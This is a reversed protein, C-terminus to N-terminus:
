GKKFKWVILRDDAEIVADPGIPVITQLGRKIALIIVNEARINSEAVSKDIWKEKPIMEAIAFDEANRFIETIDIRLLSHAVKEGIEKEPFVVRDAGLKELIAKQRMTEAKVIIYASGSEKAVTVATLTAEFDEGTAIIVADFNGLELKALNDEDGIDFQVAETAFAAAHQVRGPDNDCVLVNTGHASLEEAISMGFLGLGLVAYEKTKRKV